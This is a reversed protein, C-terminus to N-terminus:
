NETEAMNISLEDLTFSKDAVTKLFNQAKKPDGKTITVAATNAPIDIYYEAVGFEADLLETAELCIETLRDISHKVTKYRVCTHNGLVDTYIESPNNETINVFLTGGYSYVGGYTEPYVVGHETEFSALLQEYANQATDEFPIERKTFETTTETETVTTTVTTTETTTVTTEATTEISSSGLTLSEETVVESEEAKPACATLLAACCVAALLKKM